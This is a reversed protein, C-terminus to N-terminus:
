NALREFKWIYIRRFMQSFDKTSVFSFVWQQLNSLVLEKPRINAALDPSNIEFQEDFLLVLRIQENHPNMYCVYTDKVM